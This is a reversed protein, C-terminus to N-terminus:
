ASPLAARQVRLIAEEVSIRTGDELYAMDPPRVIVAYEIGNLPLVVFPVDRTRAQARALVNADVDLVGLGLKLLKVLTLGGGPAQADLAVVDFDDAALLQVAEAATKAITLQAGRATLSRESTVVLEGYVLVRRPRRKRKGDADETDLDARVVQVPLGRRFSLDAM